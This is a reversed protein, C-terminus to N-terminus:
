GCARVNEGMMVDRGIDVPRSSDILEHSLVSNCGMRARRWSYVHMFSHVGDGDMWAHVFRIDTTDVFM